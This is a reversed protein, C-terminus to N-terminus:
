AFDRQCDRQYDPDPKMSEEHQVLLDNEISQICDKTLLPMLDIVGDDYDVAVSYLSVGSPYDPELQLGSRERAGRCAHTYDYHLKVELECARGDIVLEMTTRHTNM